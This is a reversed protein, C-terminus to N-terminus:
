YPIAWATLSSNSDATFLVPQHNSIEGYGVLNKGAIAV